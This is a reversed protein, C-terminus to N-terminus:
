DGKIKPFDFNRAHVAPSSGATQHKTSMQMLGIISRGCLPTGLLLRVKIQLKPFEYETWQAIPVNHFQFVVEM